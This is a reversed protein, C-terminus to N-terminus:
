DLRGPPWFVSLAAQGVAHTSRADLAAGVFGGLLPVAKAAGQGAVRGSLQLALREALQTLMPTTIVRGLQVGCKALLPAAAEGALCTYATMAVRENQVDWGALHAIACVLRIQLVTVALV